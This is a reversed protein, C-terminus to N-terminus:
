RQAAPPSASFTGACRLSCFWYDQGDYRLRGAANAHRVQMRCIPDISTAEIPPALALEFLEVRDAVNRLTFCGLAVVDIGQGRAASAVATTVLAQGGRAQAAIRATLNVTAGFWDSDRELAPGHHVGTRPVPFGDTAVCAGLLKELSRLAATPSPFRLMVADGLCKVLQDVPSLSDRAIALFNDILALADADGHIETLATFGALDVFAFTSSTPQDVTSPPESV